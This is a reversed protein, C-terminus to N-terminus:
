HSCMSHMLLVYFGLAFPLFRRSDSRPTFLCLVFVALLNVLAYGALGASEECSSSMHHPVFGLCVLDLLYAMRKPSFGRLSFKFHEMLQM